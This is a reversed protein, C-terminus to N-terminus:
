KNVVKQRGPLRHHFGCDRRKPYRGIMYITLLGLCYQKDTGSAGNHLKRTLKFPAGKLTSESDEDALWSVEVEFDPIWNFDMLPKLTDKEKKVVMEPLLEPAVRGWYQTFNYQFRVRLKRLGKMTGIVEWMKGPGLDKGEKINIHREGHYEWFSGLEHINVVIEM